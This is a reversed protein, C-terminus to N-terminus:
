GWFAGLILMAVFWIAVFKGYRLLNDNLMPEFEKQPKKPHKHKHRYKSRSRAM